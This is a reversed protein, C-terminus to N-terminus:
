RTLFSVAASNFEKPDEFHPWHRVDPMEFVEAHPILRAISTATEQYVGHDRGSAVVMVPATISRWKDEPILNRDRVAADQLILLHDISERTDDRQYIARRLGILDPLRNTEDAILHAFVAHLSEWTPENVAKTREARIRAMNSAAAEKGAPSMLIVKSVRDPHHVAITSAVWAGLSMAVFNAREMGFHDMVGLVHEVYVAIEYDYDPKDSFGNGVMDIAVCHFHESLAALNPAFTEWHGGTGHLLIAHPKDPRGAEAYRTRVPSGYVAVDIFGQRFDLEKLYMWISRYDETDIVAGSTVTETM